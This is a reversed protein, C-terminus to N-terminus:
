EDGFDTVGGFRPQGFVDVASCCARKIPPFTVKKGRWGFVSPGIGWAIFHTSLISM